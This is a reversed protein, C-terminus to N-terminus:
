VDQYPHKSRFIEIMKSSDFHMSPIPGHDFIVAEREIPYGHGLLLWDVTTRAEEAANPALVIARIPLPATTTKRVQGWESTAVLKVRPRPGNSGPTFTIDAANGSLTIRTEKEDQFSGHKAVATIEAVAAPYETLLVGFAQDSSDIESQPVGAKEQARTRAISREHEDNWTDGVARLKAMSLRLLHSSNYIVDSWRAIDVPRPSSAKGIVGLPETPDLGIACGTRSGAAYTRWAYLNDPESSACFIFRSKALLASSRGQMFHDNERELRDWRIAEKVFQSYAPDEGLKKLAKRIARDATQPERRDNQYSVETALLTNEQLILQLSELTTYHWVLNRARLSKISTKRM